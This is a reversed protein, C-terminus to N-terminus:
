ASGEKKADEHLRQKLFGQRVGKINCVSELNFQHLLLATPLGGFWSDALVVKLSGSHWPATIRATCAAVAGNETCWRELNQESSEEVWEFSLLV